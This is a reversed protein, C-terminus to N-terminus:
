AEFNANVLELDTKAFHDGVCLLPADALKATAYCLCDGFNLQAPHRGRGFREHALAAEAVHREDFHRIRLNLKEILRQAVWHRESGFRRMLLISAEVATPAGISASNARQLIRVLARYWQPPSPEM